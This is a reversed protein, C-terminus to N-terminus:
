QPLKRCNESAAMSDDTRICTGQMESRREAPRNDTPIKRPCSDMFRPRVTKMMDHPLGLFHPTLSPRDVFSNGRYTLITVM